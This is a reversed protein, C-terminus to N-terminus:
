RSLNIHFTVINMPQLKEENIFFDKIKNMTLNLNVFFLKKM